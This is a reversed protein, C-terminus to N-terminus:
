VEFITEAGSTPKANRDVQQKLDFPENRAESFSASKRHLATPSRLQPNALENDATPPLHRSDPESAKVTNVIRQVTKALSRTRQDAKNPHSSPM